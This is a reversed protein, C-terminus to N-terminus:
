GSSASAPCDSRRTNKALDCVFHSATSASGGNGMIFVQRRELRAQELVQIVQEIQAVPLDELTSSAPRSVYARPEHCGGGDATSSPGRRSRDVITSSSRRETPRWASRCNRCIAWRPASREQRDPPCLLVLFGGGGAGTLKGGLAGARRAALYLDDVSGNSVQSAM